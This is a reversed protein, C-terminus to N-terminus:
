LTQFQKADKKWQPGYINTMVKNWAVTIKSADKNGIFEDWVSSGIAARALKEFLLNKEEKTLEEM